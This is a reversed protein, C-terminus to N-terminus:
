EQSDQNSNIGIQTMTDQLKKTGNDFPNYDPTLGLIALNKNYQERKKEDTLHQQIHSAYTGDEIKEIREEFSPGQNQIPTVPKPTPQPPLPFIMRANDPQKYAQQLFRVQEWNIPLRNEKSKQMCIHMFWAFPDRLNRKQTRLKQYAYHIVAPDFAMLRIQGWKTLWLEKLARIDPRIPNSSSMERAKKELQINIQQENGPDHGNTNGRLFTLRDVDTLKRNTLPNYYRLLVINKEQRVNASQFTFSPTTQNIQAQALQFLLPAFRCSKLIHALLKRVGINRFFPNLVYIKTMMHRYVSKIIGKNELVKLRRRVHRATIDVKIGITRQGMYMVSCHADKYIFYDVMGRDTKSLAEIFQVPDQITQETQEFHVNQVDQQQKEIHISKWTQATKNNLAKKANEQLNINNQM